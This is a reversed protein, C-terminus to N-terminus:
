RAQDLGLTPRQLEFGRRETGLDLHKILLQHTLRDADFQNTGLAVVETHRFRDLLFGFLCLSLSETLVFQQLFDRLVVGPQTVFQVLQHGLQFASVGLLVDSGAPDLANGVTKAQRALLEFDGAQALCEPLDQQLLSSTQRIHVIKFGGFLTALAQYDVGTQPLDL